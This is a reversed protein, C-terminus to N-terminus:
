PRQGSSVADPPIEDKHPAEITPAHRDPEQLPTTRSILRTQPQPQRGAAVLVRVREILSHALYAKTVYADAGANLGRRIGEPETLASLILVPVTDMAKMRRIHLLVEFGDVGEMILDLIVLTPILGENLLTLATEGDKVLICPIGIRQLLTSILKRTDADDEVVLVQSTTYAM